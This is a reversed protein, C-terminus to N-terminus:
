RKRALLMGDPTPICVSDFHEAAEQHMRRVAAAADSDDLLNGFFHANDALLLGGRRLNARAWRAYVDYRGKDADLFVLDFPGHEDLTPLVVGADGEVVTVREALGADAIRARAVAAHKAEFEVTWLHGDVPLGRAIQIASFGALTGVEVAREVGAIGTLLELLRGESRGVQIAPMGEADPAEFAAALSRDFGAHVGDLWELIARDAYRRGARSDRDAM